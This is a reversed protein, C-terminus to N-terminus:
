PDNRFLPGSSRGRDLRGRIDEREAQAGAVESQSFRRLRLDLMAQAAAETIGFLEAISDRAAQPDRADAVIDM